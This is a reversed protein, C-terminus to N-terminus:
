LFVFAILDLFAIFQSLPTNMSEQQHKYQSKEEAQWVWKLSRYNNLAVMEDLSMRGTSDIQILLHNWCRRNLMRIIEFWMIFWCSAFNYQSMYHKLNQRKWLCAPLRVREGEEDTVPHKRERRESGRFVAKNGQRAQSRRCGKAWRKAEEGELWSFIHNSKYCADEINLKKHKSKKKLNQNQNKIRPMGRRKVEVLMTWYKVEPIWEADLAKSFTYSISHPSEQHWSICSMGM